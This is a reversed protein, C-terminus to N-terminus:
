KLVVKVMLTIIFSLRAHKVWATDVTIGTRIVLVGQSRWTFSCRGRRHSVKEATCVNGEM